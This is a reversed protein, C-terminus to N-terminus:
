TNSVAHKLNTFKLSTIRKKCKLYKVSANEFNSFAIILKTM